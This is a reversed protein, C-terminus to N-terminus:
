LIVLPILALHPINRLMQLTSDTVTESARWSGNALGLVFGLSGGIALGGLARAASVLLNAPLEGSATLRAAAALVASPAPLIVAPLVGTSAAAQWIAVLGLPLLWPVVGSLRRSAARPARLKVTKPATETRAEPMAKLPLTLTM